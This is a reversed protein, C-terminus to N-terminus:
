EKLEKDLMNYERIHYCKLHEKLGAFTKFYIEECLQCEWCERIM